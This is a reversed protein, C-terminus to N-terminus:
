LRNEDVSIDTDARLRAILGEVAETTRLFTLQRRIMDRESESAETPDGATVAELRVVAYGGRRPLVHLTPDQGPDPLAFVEQVFTPGRRFENRQLAEITELELGAQEAVQELSTGEASAQELLEEARAQAMEATREARLTERIRDAVEDLPRPEAPRHEAVKIAVMRNNELEIPDSVAGDRLVLDSFAAEVVEPRSAIGEETGDRTFWDTQRIELDLEEALPELTADNAYVLDVMRQSLEIYLDERQRARYEELIESRAEAFSMGEPPRIGDLRILHWGFQTEVPESVDGVSDLDYLADEFPTVMDGPEVFGLDGGQEASAFDDSYERAIEEFSEGEAIRERLQEILARAEQKSRQENASILIHSANRAEPTLYRQQAAEYRQRLEDEDLTADQLMDSTDLEVYDLRVQEEAMFEDTNEEYYTAVDEETISIEDAFRDAPVDVVAVRRKQRQLSILRDVETETVVSSESLATPVLRTQLDERLNREFSAPTEGASRLARRYVDPNFQGEIQFASIGGLVELVAQESVGLGASEAYQRLLTEDILSELHERRVEPRSFEIENYNDGLQQRMRQKYRAFSTEFESITIETDGVSAIANQPTGRLYSDLGFFLFPVALLGLVFIAVIGTVRERIAQLM